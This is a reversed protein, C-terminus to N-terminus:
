DLFLILQFIFRKNHDYKEIKVKLIVRHRSLFIHFIVLFQLIEACFVLYDFDCQAFFASCCDLYKEVWNKKSILVLLFRARWGEM